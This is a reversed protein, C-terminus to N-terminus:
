KETGKPILRQIHIKAYGDFMTGGDNFVQAIAPIGDAKADEEGTLLFSLSVNLAKALRKVAMFDEPLSGSRWSVVTSPAVGAHKAAERVGIQKEEMLRILIKSFPSQEKRKRQGRKEM